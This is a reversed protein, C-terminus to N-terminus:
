QSINMELLGAAELTEDAWEKAQLSLLVRQYVDASAWAKQWLTIFRQIQVLRAATEPEAEAASWEILYKAEELHRAVIAPDDAHRASSSIRALTAELSGLQVPLPDRLFRERLKDKNKM